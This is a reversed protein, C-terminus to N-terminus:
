AILLPSLSGPSGAGISATAPAHFPRVMASAEPRAMANSKMEVTVAPRENSWHTSPM